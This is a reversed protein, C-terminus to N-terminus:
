INGLIVIYLFSMIIGLVFAILSVSLGGIAMGKHSDKKSLGIASCVIGGIALAIAIWPIWFGIIAFIGFVLGAIAMNNNKMPMADYVVARAPQAYYNNQQQYPQYQGYPQNQAYAQNQAYTQNQGCAQDQGYTQNQGYQEEM